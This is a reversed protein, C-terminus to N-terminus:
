KEISEAVYDNYIEPREKLIAEVERRHNKLLDTTFPFIDRKALKKSKGGPSDTSITAAPPELTPFHHLYIRIFIGVITDDILSTPGFGNNFKKMDNIAHLYCLHIELEKPVGKGEMADLFSKSNFMFTQYSLAQLFNDSFTFSNDIDLSARIIKCISSCLSEWSTYLKVMTSNSRRLKPLMSILSILDLKKTLLVIFFSAYQFTYYFHKGPREQEPKWISVLTKSTAKLSVFSSMEELAEAVDDFEYFLITALRYRPKHQWNKKDYNDVKKLSAIILRYFDLKETAIEDESLSIVPDDRLYQLGEKISLQDNKVYKYVLSCITYHPEIIHDTSKSQEHAIKCAIHLTDLVLQPERKLKRQIKSLYYFNTWDTPKSKVAVHMSQQMIKLCLNLSVTSKQDVNVFSAGSPKRIFKPIGQVKFAHMSMPEMCASYMEKAFSSMLGEIIPKILHREEETKSHVTGNIAMLYCILSKRQINATGVKRDAVTLKDSTWILDDEVLFGFAQGLLYWSETRNTCFILDNRLLMIVNELEVARSQMNKKRVKYSSFILLGQLYYLGEKILKSDLNPEEFDTTILGHFADRLFRPTIRTTELFYDLCADNRSLVESAEFNPEGVVLYIEDILTKTEHKPINVLPNKKFCLPLVFNALERTANLDLEDKDKTGHDKPSFNGINISYHYRCSILQAFDKDSACGLQGLTQHIFRLFVGESSDCLNRVGLQDHSLSILDALEQNIQSIGENPKPTLIAKYYILILTITAILIDKLRQFSTMSKRQISIKLSSIVCAEEHVSFIYLMEFMRLLRALTDEIQKGETVPLNWKLSELTQLYISLKEGYFGIIRILTSLRQMDDLDNYDRGTLYSEIFELNKEFGFQLLEKKDNFSYYSFLITWLNLKMDVPSTNLFEKIPELAESDVIDNKVPVSNRHQRGRRKETILIGQFLDIAETNNKDSDSYLIRSFISIVSTTTLQARISGTNLPILNEHNPYYISIKIKMKEIYRLLRELSEVIFSTEAITSNKCKERQFLSWRFRCELHLHLKKQYGSKSERLFLDNIYEGWKELKDNIKILEMSLNNPGTKAAKSTQKKVLSSIADAIQSRLTLMVDVLIEHISIALSLNEYYNIEQNAIKLTSLIISEFQIVWEKVRSILKPSWTSDLILSYYESNSAEQIVGLLRRLIFLKVDGYSNNGENINTLLDKIREKVEIEEIRPLESKSLKFKSKKGFDNLVEVLRVKEDDSTNQPGSSEDNYFLARTYSKTDWDSIVEVFDNVYQPIRKRSSENADAVYVKVIDSLVFKRKDKSLKQLYHNLNEFFKITEIFHSHVIELEPIEVASDSKALRKSSRHIAVNKLSDDDQKPKDNGNEKKESEPATSDDQKSTNEDINEMADDFVDSEDESDNLIPPLSFTLREIPNETLLYPEVYRLKTRNVEEIKHEDQISKLEGNIKEIISLWSLTGEKASLKLQVERLLKSSRIQNQYDTKIPELFKLKENIAAKIDSSKSDQQQSLDFEHLSSKLYNYKQDIGSDIPIIGWIDDSEEKASMSYEVTFRALRNADIYVFIEYLTELLKEDGEQYILAICLDDLM